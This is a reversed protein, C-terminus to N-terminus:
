LYSPRNNALDDSIEAAKLILANRVKDSIEGSNYCDNALIILSESKGKQYYQHAEIETKFCKIKYFLEGRLMVSSYYGNYRGHVRTVGCLLVDQNKNKRRSHYAMNVSSPVFCCTSPSYISGDGLIDKDLHKNMWSPDNYNDVWNKFSTFSKWENCITTHAYEVNHDSKYEYCYKGEKYTCRTLVNAWLAYYPCKWVKGDGLRKFVEHEADNIGIGRVLKSM